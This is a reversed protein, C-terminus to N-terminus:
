PGTGAGGGGGKGVFNHVRQPHAATYTSTHKVMILDSVFTAGQFQGELVVPIGPQFLQPPYGTNDVAVQVGNNAISFDVHDGVRRVTGPVVTGEIRFRNDGLQPRMHVAQDATYFYTTAGALGKALLFGLAAVVVLVMAWARRRSRRRRVAPPPVPPPAPAAPAPTAAQSM